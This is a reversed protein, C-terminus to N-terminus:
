LNPLAPQKQLFFCGKEKGSGDWEGDIFSVSRNLNGHMTIELYKTETFSSCSIIIASDGLLRYTGTVSFSGGSENQLLEIKDRPDIRVTIDIIENESGYSGKWTGCISNKVPENPGTFFTLCSTIIAVLIKM